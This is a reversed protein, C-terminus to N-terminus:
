PGASFHNEMARGPQGPFQFPFSVIPKLRCGPRFFRNLLWGELFVDFLTLSLGLLPDFSNISGNVPLFFVLAYFCRWKQPRGHTLLAAPRGM